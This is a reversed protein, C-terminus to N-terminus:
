RLHTLLAPGPNMSRGNSGSRLTTSRLPNSGNVEETRPLMEGFPTEFQDLQLKNSATEIREISRLLWEESDSMKHPISRSLTFRRKVATPQVTLDAAQLTM